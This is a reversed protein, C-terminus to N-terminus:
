VRDMIGHRFYPLELIDPGMSAFFSTHISIEDVFTFIEQSFDLM